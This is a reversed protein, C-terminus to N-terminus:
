KTLEFGMNMGDYNDALTTITSLTSNSSVSSVAGATSKLLSLLKDASFLLKLTSGSVSAEAKFSLGISTKMTITNGDLTYTGSISKGSIKQTYTGDESFTYSTSGSKIGVKSFVESLKSEVQTAATSGGAKALLSESEFSVAPGSYTWTGAISSATVETDSSVLDSVTSAVNGLISKLNQANAPTQEIAFIAALALAFIFSKKM